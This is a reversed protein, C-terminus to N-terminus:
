EPREGIALAYARNIEAMRASDGGLDPHHIRALERYAALPYRDAKM